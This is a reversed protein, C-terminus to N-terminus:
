VESPGLTLATGEMITAPKALFCTNQSNFIIKHFQQLPTSKNETALLIQTFVSKQSM